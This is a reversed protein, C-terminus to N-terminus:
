TSLYYALMVMVWWRGVRLPGGKLHVDDSSLASLLATFHKCHFFHVICTVYRSILKFYKKQLYKQSAVCDVCDVCVIYM